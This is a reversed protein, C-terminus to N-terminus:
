NAVIFIACVVRNEEGGVIHLAEADEVWGLANAWVEKRRKDTEVASEGSAELRDALWRPPQSEQWSERNLTVQKASHSV